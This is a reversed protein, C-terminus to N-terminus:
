RDGTDRLAGPLSVDLQSHILRLVSELEDPAVRLRAGFAARTGTVVADRAAALWRAATARHVGHQAALADIGLGDLVSQRLVLRDRHPLAAVAEAFAVRFEDRYKQKLHALEPTDGAGLERELQEEDAHPERRDRELLRAAERTAIVKLWTALSSKGSYSAIAPQAAGAKRVLLRVRVIQVLEVVQTPTAGAAEVAREIVRVYARDFAAIASADGRACGLALELDAAHADDSEPM